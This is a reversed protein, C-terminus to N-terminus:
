KERREEKKEKTERKEGGGAQPLLKRHPSLLVNDRQPSFPLLPPPSPSPSDGLGFFFPIHHPIRLLLSPPLAAGAAVAWFALSVLQPTLGM